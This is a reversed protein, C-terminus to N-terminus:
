SQNETAGFGTMPHALLSGLARTETIQRSLSVNTEKLYDLDKALALKTSRSNKGHKSKAQRVTSRAAMVHDTNAQMHSLLLKQIQFQKMHSNKGSRKEMKMDGTDVMIILLISVRTRTKLSSTTPELQSVKDLMKVEQTLQVGSNTRSCLLTSILSLNLKISQVMTSTNLSHSLSIEESSTCQTDM